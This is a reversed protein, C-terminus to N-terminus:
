SREIVYANMQYWIEVKRQDRDAHRLPFFGGLGSLEYNRWILTELIEKIHNVKVASLPDEYRQLRLNKILQWACDEPESGEIFALRRSLAVLVELVSAPGDQGRPARGNLFEHRLELADGIRNDDNAVLWHFETRHMIRFLQQYSKPTHIQGVLWEFYEGAM